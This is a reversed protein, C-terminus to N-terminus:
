SPHMQLEHKHQEHLQQVYLPAQQEELEVQLNYANNNHHFLWELTNVVFHRYTTPLNLCWKISHGTAQMLTVLLTYAPLPPRPSLDATEVVHQPATSPTSQEDQM